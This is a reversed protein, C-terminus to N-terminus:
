QIINFFRNWRVRKWFDIPHKILDFFFWGRSDRSTIRFVVFGNIKSGDLPGWFRSDYSGLRNDGMVWYHHDNLEVYFEDTGDWYSNGDEQRPLGSKPLPAGPQEIILNGEKDKILQDETFRYFPQDSFSKEPDYSRTQSYMERKLEVLREDIVLSESTKGYTPLTQNINDKPGDAPAWKFIEPIERKISDGEQLIRIQPYKNIYPEDYKQNNIYMVPKGDEIVGRIKDGPVGIIRKVDVLQKPTSFLVIDRQKPNKFFTSIKDIIIVEGRLITTEMSGSVQRGFDILFTRLMFITIFFLAVVSVLYWFNMKMVVLGKKEFLFFWKSRIM